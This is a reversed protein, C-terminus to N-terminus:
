AAVPALSGATVLLPTVDCGGNFEQEVALQGDTQKVLISVRESDRNDTLVLRGGIALGRCLNSAAIKISADAFYTKNLVNAVKIIDV